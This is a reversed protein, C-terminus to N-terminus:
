SDEVSVIVEELEQQDSVRADALRAQKQPKGVVCIGLAVNRCNTDVKYATCTGKRM